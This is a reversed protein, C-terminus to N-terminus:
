EKKKEDKKKEKEKRRKEKEKVKAERAEKKKRIQEETSKLFQEPDKINLIKIKKEIAKKIIEIKKRLGLTSSLIIGDTEPNIKELNKISAVLMTNLGSKHLNKVKRPSGYGPSPSKRYGKLKKRMKAHLGKPKRWKLELKKRKTDQRVFEPKKKKIQKRLELQNM